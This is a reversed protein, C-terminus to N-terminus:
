TNYLPLTTSSQEGAENVINKFSEYLSESVCPDVLLENIRPLNEKALPDSAASLHSSSRRTAIYQAHASCDLLFGFRKKFRAARARYYQLLMSCEAQLDQFVSSDEPLFRSITTALADQDASSSCNTSSPLVPLDVLADLWEFVRRIDGSPDQVVQTHWISYLDGAIASLVRFFVDSRKTETDLPDCDGPQHEVHMADIAGSFAESWSRLAQLIMRSQERSQALLGAGSPLVAHVLCRVFAGTEPRGVFEVLQETDHRHVERYLLVVLKICELDSLQELLAVFEERSAGEAVVVRAIAQRPPETAAPLLQPMRRAAFHRVMCAVTSTASSGPGLEDLDCGSEYLQQLRTPLPRGIARVARQLLSDCCFPHWLVLQCLRDAVSRLLEGCAAIRFLPLASLMDSIVLLSRFPILALLQRASRANDNAASSSYFFFVCMSALARLELGITSAFPLEDITRCQACIQHINRMVHPTHTLSYWASRLADVTAIQMASSPREATSADPESLPLIPTEPSPSRSDACTADEFEQVATSLDSSRNPSPQPTPSQPVGDRVFSRPEGSAKRHRRDYASRALLTWTVYKALHTTCFRLFVDIYLPSGGFSATSLRLDNLAALMAQLSTLLETRSARFVPFSFMVSLALWVFPTRQSSLLRPDRRLSLTERAVAAVVVHFLMCRLGQLPLPVATSTGDDDDDHRPTDCEIVTSPTSSSPANSM